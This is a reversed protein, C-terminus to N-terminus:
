NAFLVRVVTFLLAFFYGNWFKDLGVLLQGREARYRGLMMMCTGAMIPLFVLNVVRLYGPTFHNPMLLLSLGGLGGGMIACGIAVMWANSKSQFPAAVARMGLEMTGEFLMQALFEGLLQFIFEFM